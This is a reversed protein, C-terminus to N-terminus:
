LASKKNLGVSKRAFNRPKSWNQRAKVQGAWLWCMAFRVLEMSFYIKALDIMGLFVPVASVQAKRLIHYIEAERSVVKRWLGSTTGKGVVTYGYVACTLKFPAGYSGCSGFPICRDISEDMKEKLLSMLGPTTISHQIGNGNQQHINVNPYHEDLAGGHQLGLLCRQTCFQARHRQEMDHQREIEKQRHSDNQDNEEQGPSRQLHPLEVQVFGRKQGPFGQDSESGSSSPSGAHDSPDHAVSDMRSRTPIQRELITPSHIRSSSGQYGSITPDSEKSGSPPSKQLKETSINEALTHDFCVTWRHLYACHINRWEQNRSQSLSSMLCLCLVRAISTNPQELDGDGGDVEQNPERFHYHLTSPNNYPVRLLVLAVGTSLYSYELGDQIMVHYQEVIASCVLRQANKMLREDNLMKNAKVIGKWVHMDRLRLRLNELSLKAPPKYEVTALLTKVKGDVRHIFRRDLRGNATIPSETADTEFDESEDLTNTHSDFRVGDGLGFEERAAPIQYLEAIILNVRHEVAMTESIRLDNETTLPRNFHGGPGELAPRPSFLRPTNNEAQLHRCVSNLIAQQQPACDVWRELRTPCYKATPPPLQEVSSYYLTGVKLPRSLENHCCRIFELFTTQQNHVRLRRLEGVAQKRKERAGYYLAKYDPSSNSAM